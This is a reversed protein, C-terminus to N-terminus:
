LGLHLFQQHYQRKQNNKNIHTQKQKQRQLILAKQQRVYVELGM